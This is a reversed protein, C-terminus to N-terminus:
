EFIPMSTMSITDNECNPSEQYSQSQAEIEDPNDEAETDEAETEEEVEQSTYTKLLQEVVAPDFKSPRSNFLFM